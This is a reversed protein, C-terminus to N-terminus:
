YAGDRLRELGDLVLDLGFEFTGRHEDSPEIHQRIHDALDPYDNSPFEQLFTAALEKLKTRDFQFSLVYLTFGTIHSQLAHFAHYTLDPSFGGARFTRLVSDAYRLQTPSAEQRSM